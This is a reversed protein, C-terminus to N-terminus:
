HDLDMFSVTTWFENQKIFIPYPIERCSASTLAMRFSDKRKKTTGYWGDGRTAGISHRYRYLMRQAARYYIEQGENTSNQGM